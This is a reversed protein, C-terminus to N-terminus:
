QADSVPRPVVNHEEDSGSLVIPRQYATVTYKALDSHRVRHSLCPNGPHRFYYSGMGRHMIEAQISRVPFAQQNNFVARRIEGEQEPFSFDDVEEWEGTHNYLYLPMNDPTVYVRTIHGSGGLGPQPKSQDELGVLAIHIDSIRDFFARQDLELQERTVIGQESAAVAM